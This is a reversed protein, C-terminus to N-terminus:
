LDDASKEQSAQQQIKKSRSRRKVPAKSPPPPAAPRADDFAEASQELQGILLTLFHIRTGQTELFENFLFGGESLDDENDLIQDALGEVLVDRGRQLVEIAARYKNLMTDPM